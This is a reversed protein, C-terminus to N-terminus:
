EKKHIKQLLEQAKKKEEDTGVKMIDTLVHEAEKMNGMQIYANALDFKAPIADKTNMFDYEGEEANTSMQDKKSTDKSHSRMFLKVLLAILILIAIVTIWFFKSQSTLYAYIQQYKEKVWTNSNTQKVQPQSVQATSQTKKLSHFEVNLLRAVMELNQVREAIKYNEQKLEAMNTNLQQQLQTVSKNIQIVLQQLQLFQAESVFTVNTNKSQNNNGSSTKQQSKDQTAQTQTNQDSQSFGSGSILNSVNSWQGASEDSSQLTKPPNFHGAAQNSLSHPASYITQITSFVLCFGLAFCIINVKKLLAIVTTV